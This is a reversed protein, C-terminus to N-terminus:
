VYEEGMRKIIEERIAQRNDLYLVNIKPLVEFLQPRNRQVEHITAIWSYAAQEVRVWGMVNTQKVIVEFTQRSKDYEGCRYLCIGYQYDLPIQYRLKLRPSVTNWCTPKKLLERSGNVIEAFHLARIPLGSKQNRCNELRLRVETLLALIDMNETDIQELFLSSNAIEWAEEVYKKARELSKQTNQKTLEWSLTGLASIRVQMDGNCQSQKLFWKSLEVVFDIKESLHAIYRIRSYIQKLIDYCDDEQMGRKIAPIILKSHKDCFSEQMKDLHEFDHKMDWDNLYDLVKKLLEPTPLQLSELDLTRSISRDRELQKLYNRHWQKVDNDSLERIPTNNLHARHHQLFNLVGALQSASKLYSWGNQHRVANILKDADNDSLPRKGSYVSVLTGSHMGASSALANMSPFGLATSAQKNISNVPNNISTM